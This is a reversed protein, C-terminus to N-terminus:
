VELQRRTEKPVLAAHEVCIKAPARVRPDNMDPEDEVQTPQSSRPAKCPQQELWALIRCALVGLNLKPHLKFEFHLPGTSRQQEFIGAPHGIISM